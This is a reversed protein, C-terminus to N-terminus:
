AIVAIDHKFRALSAELNAVRKELAELRGDEASDASRDRMTEIKLDAAMAASFSARDIPVEGSRTAYAADFASAWADRESADRFRLASV